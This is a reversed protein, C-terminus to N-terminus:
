FRDKCHKLFEETTFKQSRNQMRVFTEQINLFHVYVPETSKPVQIILYQKDNDTVFEFKLKAIFANNKLIRKFSETIALRFKDVSGHYEKLDRDLGLITSDDNVGVFLRGGEQNAFASITISIEKQIEARYTKRNDRRANASEIKGKNRLNEEDLDYQFTSKFENWTDEDKPISTDFKTLNEISPHSLSNNKLLEVSSIIQNLINERLKKVNSNSDINCTQCLEVIEDKRLEDLLFKVSKKLIIKNSYINKLLKDKNGSYPLNCDSLIYTIDEKSSYRGLELFIDKSSVKKSMQENQTIIKKVRGVQSDELEVKIGHPHKSSATLITKVIGETLKGTRQDQKLEILVKSGIKIQSHTPFDSV